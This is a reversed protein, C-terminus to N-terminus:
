EGLDRSEGGPRAGQEGDQGSPPFAELNLLEIDARLTPQNDKATFLYDAEKEEVIYRATEKQTHMADATIVANKLDLNALLPKISPIENTKEDIRQQALVAGEQHSFASLLQTAPSDGDDSGRVVKGDVAIGEGESASQRAFWQGVEEEFRQIGFDNVVRRYTKESPPNKRRCGLLLLTERPIEKAWQTIAAFSRAGCLTACAAIALISSLSFRRGRPKRFDAMSELVDILGGEGRLPLQEIAIMRFRRVEPKEEQARRLLQVAHRQLPYVFVLKRGGHYRYANGSKAWGRTEGLLVWNSARYCTGQFRNADVFTEALLVRHDYREEWDASLRRLNAALIRSALNKQSLGPLLLFRTNNVVLHLKVAKTAEDWGIYRDRAGCKLAAAAWGLLGVAQGSLLAVYCISEGVIQGCGLYHYADMHERWALREQTVIPRVVLGREATLPVESQEPWPRPRAEKCDQTSEPRQGRAPPSRKLCEPPLDIM